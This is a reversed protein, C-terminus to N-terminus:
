TRLTKLRSVGFFSKTKVVVLARSSKRVYVCIVASSKEIQYIVSQPIWASQILFLACNLNVKISIKNCMKSIVLGPSWFGSLPKIDSVKMKLILFIVNKRTRVSKLQFQSFNRAAVIPKRVFSTSNFGKLESVGPLKFNVRLSLISRSIM